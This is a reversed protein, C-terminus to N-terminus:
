SLSQELWSKKLRTGTCTVKVTGTDTSDLMRISKHTVDLVGLVTIFLLAWRAWGPLGDLGASGWTRTAAAPPAPLVQAHDGTALAAHPLLAAEEDM